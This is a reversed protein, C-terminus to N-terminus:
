MLCQHINYNQALKFVWKGCKKESILTCSKEFVSGSEVDCKKLLQLPKRCGSRIYFVHSVRRKQSNEIFFQEFHLSSFSIGCCYARPYFFIFCFYNLKVNFKSDAKEFIINQPTRTNVEIKIKTVHM